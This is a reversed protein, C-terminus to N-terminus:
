VSSLALVETRPPRSFLPLLYTSSLSPPEIVESPLAARLKNPFPILRSRLRSQAPPSRHISPPNAKRSRANPSQGRDPTEIVVNKSEGPIFPVYARRGIYRRRGEKRGGGEELRKYVASGRVPAFSIGARNENTSKRAETALPQPNLRCADRFKENKKGRKEEKTHFPFIRCRNGISTTEECNNILSTKKEFNPPFSFRLISLFFFSTAGVRALQIRYFSYSFTSLIRIFSPTSYNYRRRKM